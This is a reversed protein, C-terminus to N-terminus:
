PKENQHNGRLVLRGAYLSLAGATIFSPLSSWSAAQGSWAWGIVAALLAVSAILCYRDEKTFELRSQISIWVASMALLISILTLVSSASGVDHQASAAFGGILSSVLFSLVTLSIM